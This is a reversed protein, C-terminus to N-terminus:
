YKKWFLLFYKNIRRIKKLMNKTNFHHNVNKVFFKLLVVTLM